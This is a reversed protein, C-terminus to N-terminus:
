RTPSFDKFKSEFENKLEPEMKGYIALVRSWREENPLAQNRLLASIKAFQAQASESMQGVYQHVKQRHSDEVEDNEQMFQRYLLQLPERERLSGVQREGDLRSVLEDLEKVQDDYKSNPRRIIIKYQIPNTM